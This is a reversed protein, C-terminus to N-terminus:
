RPHAEQPHTAGPAGLDSGKRHQQKRRGKEAQGGTFRTTKNFEAQFTPNPKARCGWSTGQPAPM